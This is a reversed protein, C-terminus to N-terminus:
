PESTRDPATPSSETARSPLILLIRPPRPCFRSGVMAARKRERAAKDNRTSRLKRLSAKQHRVAKEAASSSLKVQWTPAALGEADDDLEEAAREVDQPSAIGVLWDTRAKREAQM